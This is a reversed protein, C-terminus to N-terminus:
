LQSATTQAFVSCTNARKLRQLRQYREYSPLSVRMNESLFHGVERYGYLAPLVTARSRLLKLSFGVFKWGVNCVSYKVANEPRVSAGSAIHSKVSLCVCVCVCVPCSIYYVVEACHTDHVIKVMITSDNAETLQRSNVGQACARPNCYNGHRDTQTHTHTDMLDCRVEPAETRRSLAAM